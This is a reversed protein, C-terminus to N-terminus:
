AVFELERASENVLRDVRQLLIRLRRAQIAQIPSASGNDVRRQLTAILNELRVDTLSRTNVARDLEVLEDDLDRALHMPRIANM